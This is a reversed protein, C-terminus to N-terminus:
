GTPTTAPSRSSTTPRHRGVVHPEGAGTVNYTGYPAGTDLLHRIARALDATFTLRGVQDDVVSPISAAHPSRFWPACSTAGEGIVWSTRVIYHRPRPRRSPDGAAKTQGYVGLPAM